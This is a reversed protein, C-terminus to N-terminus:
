SSSLLELFLWRRGEWFKFAAHSADAATFALSKTLV